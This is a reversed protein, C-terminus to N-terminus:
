GKIKLKVGTSSSDMQESISLAAAPIEPPGALSAALLLRGVGAGDGATPCPGVAGGGAGRLGRAGGADWTLVPLAGRVTDRDLADGCVGGFGARSGLRKIM